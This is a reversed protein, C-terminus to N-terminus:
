PYAARLCGGCSGAPVAWPGRTDDARDGHREREEAAVDDLAKLVGPVREKRFLACVEVRRPEVERLAVVPLKPERDSRLEVEERTGGFPVRVGEVRHEVRVRLGAGKGIHHLI